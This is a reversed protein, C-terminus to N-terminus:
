FEAEPLMGEVEAARVLGIITRSDETLKQGMGQCDPCLQTRLGELQEPVRGHGKCVDCNSYLTM